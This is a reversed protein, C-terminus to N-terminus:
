IWGKYYYFAIRLTEDLEALFLGWRASYSSARKVIDPIPAPTIDVGLKLFSHYARFMHSDSTLLVKRGSLNALMGATVVANEHTSGSANDVLIKEAPVGGFILFNRMDPAVDKGSVIVREFAHQRYAALAYTCRWYTSPDIVGINPGAASLIVLVDGKPEYWPGSLRMAYWPIVPTFTVVCLLLGITALCNIAARWLGRAIRMRTIRAEHIPRHAAM